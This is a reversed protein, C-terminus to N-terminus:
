LSILKQQILAWLNAFTWYLVMASPFPYFLVLFGIAMVYLNRKQKRLDKGSIINNHHSFAAFATIFTMLIPLINISDGLLPIHVAIRLIADPYALDKIWLFSDGAIFDLEGLVNFIAIWFPIPAVTFLLPKLNYFPTVGQAKHAAMFKDHAEEGSLNTKIAALEPALRAQILSVKRQSQILLLNVPLIFMKFLLSLLIISVGWGWDHLANLWLLIAEIGLCLSRFPEWLHAYKLKQFPQGLQTLDSKSLFSVQVQKNDFFEEGSDKDSAVWQLRGDSFSIDSSIGSIILVKYHGVVALAQDVTLYYLQKEEVKEIDSGDVIYATTSNYFAALGAYLLQEKVENTVITNIRDLDSEFHIIEAQVMQSLPISLLLLLSIHLQKQM